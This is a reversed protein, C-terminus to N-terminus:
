SAFYLKFSISFQQRTNEVEQGDEGSGGGGGGSTTISQIAISRVSREIDILFEKMEFYEAEFTFSMNVVAVSNDSSENGVSLNVGYPSLRILRGNRTILSEIERAFGLLSEASYKPLANNILTKTASPIGQYERNLSDRQEQLEQTRTFANNLSTQTQKTGEVALWVSQSLYFYVLGAVIIFLVPTIIQRM